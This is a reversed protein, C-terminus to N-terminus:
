DDSSSEKPKITTVQQQQQQKLILQQQKLRQTQVQEKVLASKRKLRNGIFERRLCDVRENLLRTLIIKRHDTKPIATTSQTKHRKKM